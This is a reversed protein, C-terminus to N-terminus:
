GECWVMSTVHRAGGAKWVTKEIARLSELFCCGDCMPSCM